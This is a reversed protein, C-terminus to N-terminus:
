MRSQGTGPTVGQTTIYGWPWGDSTSTVNISFFPPVVCGTPAQAQSSSTQSATAKTSATAVFTSTAPVNTSTGTSSSLSSNFSSSSSTVSSTTTPTVSSSGMPGTLHYIQIFGVDGCMEFQNGTCSGMCSLPAPVLGTLNPATTSCSCEDTESLGFYPSLIGRCYAMCKEALMSTPDLPAITNLLLPSDPYYGLNTMAVKAPAARGQIIKRSAPMSQKKTQPPVSYFNADLSGGCFEFPNGSCPTTYKKTKGGSPKKNNSCYCDTGKSVAFTTYGACAVMCDEVYLNALGIGNPVLEKVVAKSLRYCGVSTPTASASLISSSTTTIKVKHARRALNLDANATTFIISSLAFSVFILQCSFM